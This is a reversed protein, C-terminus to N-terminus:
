NGRLLTVYNNLKLFELRSEIYFYNMYFKLINYKRFIPIPTPNKFILIKM